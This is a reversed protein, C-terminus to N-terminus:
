HAAILVGALVNPREAPFKVSPPPTGLIRLMLLLNFCSIRDPGSPSTKFILQIGSLRTRDSKMLHPLHATVFIKGFVWVCTSNFYPISQGSAIGLTNM